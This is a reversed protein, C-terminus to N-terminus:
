LNYEFLYSDEHSDIYELKNVKVARFGQSKLFLHAPLNTERVLTHIQKRNQEKLKAKLLDLMQQGIGSRHMSSKVALNMISIRGPLLQYIIYGVIMEQYEAVLGITFSQRLVNAFDSKNWPYEFCENEIGLVQPMDRRILWRIHVRLM